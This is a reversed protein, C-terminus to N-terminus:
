SHFNKTRYGLLEQISIEELQGTNLYIEREPNLDRATCRILKTKLRNACILANSKIYENEIKSYFMGILAQELTTIKKNPNTPTTIPELDKNIYKNFRTTTKEKWMYELQIEFIIIENEPTLFKYLIKFPGFDFNINEIKISEIRDIEYVKYSELANIYSERWNNSWLSFEGPDKFLHAMDLKFANDNIEHLRKRTVNKFDNIDNIEINHSKLYSFDPVIRQNMYWIADFVDRPKVNTKINQVNRETRSLLALIKSSMLTPLPYTRITYHLIDHNITKAETSFNDAKPFNNIDIRITLVKYKIQKLKLNDLIEPFVAKILATKNDRMDRPQVAVKAKYEESFYSTLDKAFQRTDIKSSTQLDIDESMRPLGHVIRLLTGGYMILHNYNKSNYIFNLIYHQLEEKISILIRDESINSNKQEEVIKKLIPILM